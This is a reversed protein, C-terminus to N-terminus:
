TAIQPHVSKLNGRADAVTVQWDVGGDRAAIGGTGRVQLWSGHPPTYRFKIRRVLERM